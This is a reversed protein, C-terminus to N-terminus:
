KPTRTPDFDVPFYHYLSLRRIRSLVPTSSLQILTSLHNIQFTNHTYLISITEAYIRRCTCVLPLLNPCTVPFEQLPGTYLGGVKSQYCIPKIKVEEESQGWCPHKCIPRQQDHNLECLIAKIKTRTRVLHITMGGLVEEWIMDRLERPLRSVLMCQQQDNILPMRPKPRFLRGFMDSTPM